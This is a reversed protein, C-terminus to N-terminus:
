EERFCPQLVKLGSAILLRFLFNGLMISILEVSINAGSAGDDDCVCMIM